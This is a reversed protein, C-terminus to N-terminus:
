RSPFGRADGSWETMAPLRPWRPTIPDCRLVSRTSVEPKNIIYSFEQVRCRVHPAGGPCHRCTSRRLLRDATLVWRSGCQRILARRRGCASGAGRAAAAAAAAADDPLQRGRRSGYHGSPREHHGAPLVPSFHCSTQATNERSSLGEQALEPWQLRVTGTKCLLHLRAAHLKSFRLREPRWFFTVTFGATHRCGEPRHAVNGVM